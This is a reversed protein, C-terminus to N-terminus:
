AASRTTATPRSPASRPSRTTPPSRRPSAGEPQRGRRQRRSRHRAQPGDPQRRRCGLKAGEKVIAQALVRPPPPATAPWIPPRPPSRACCRRAWTRSSTRSSSRRPSPSATRPSARRASAVERDRRQPGQSRPHGQRCRRPHRRRQLMKERADANFKVEKASMNMESTTPRCDSRGLCRLLPVAPSVGSRCAPPSPASPAVPLGAAKLKGPTRSSVWSTARGEHDAPGRRRDQGRHRVMQRVPDHRRGQRRAAHLKGNEDRAAPVWPWSRAKSPNKRPRTPFSSAARRRRRPTSAASWLVTM